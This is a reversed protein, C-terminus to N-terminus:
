ILPLVGGGSWVWFAVWRRKIGCPDAMFDVGFWSGKQPLSYIAGIKPNYERLGFPLASTTVHCIHVLFGLAPGGIM